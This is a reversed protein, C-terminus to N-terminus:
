PSPPASCPDGPGRIWGIWVMDHGRCLTVTEDGFHFTNPSEPTADVDLAALDPSFSAIVNPPPGWPRVVSLRGDQSHLQVGYVPQAKVRVRKQIRLDRDLRVIETSGTAGDQHVLVVFVSGDVVAINGWPTDLDSFPGPGGLDAYRLAIRRGSPDFTALAFSTDRKPERGPSYGTWLIATLQDDARVTVSSAASLRGALPEAHVIHLDTTLEVYAFSENFANLVVHLRNGARFMDADNLDKPVPLRVRRLTTGSELDWETVWDPGEYSKDMDVVYATGAPHSSSPAEGSQVAALLPSPMEPDIPEDTLRIAHATPPAPAAAEQAHASHPPAVPPLDVPPPQAASSVARSCAALLFPMLLVPRM